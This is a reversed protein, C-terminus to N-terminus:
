GGYSKDELEKIKNKVKLEELRKDLEKLKEKRKMEENFEDLYSARQKKYIEHVWDPLRCSFADKKWKRLRRSKTDHTVWHSIIAVRNWEDNGTIRIRYDDYKRLFSLLGDINPTTLILSHTATKIGDIIGKLHRAMIMDTHYSMSSAHMGADDWLVIPARSDYDTYTEILKTVDKIKFIISDLAKRWSEEEDYGLGRYVQYATKIAYSSKGIDRLGYVIGGVFVGYDHKQEKLIKKTLNFM